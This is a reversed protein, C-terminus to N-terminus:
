SNQPMHSSGPDPILGMEGASALPNKVVSGGPFGWICNQGCFMVLAEFVPQTRQRPAPVRLVQAEMTNQHISSNPAATRFLLM